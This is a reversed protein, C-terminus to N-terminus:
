LKRLEVLATPDGFRVLAGRSQWLADLADPVPNCALLGGNTLFVFPFGPVSQLLILGLHVLHDHLLEFVAASELQFDPFLAPELLFFQKMQTGVHRAILAHGSLRGFLHLLAVPVCLAITAFVPPITARSTANSVVSFPLVSISILM